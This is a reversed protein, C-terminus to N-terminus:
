AASELLSLIDDALKFCQAETREPIITLIREAFEEPKWNGHPQREAGSPTGLGALAVLRAIEIRLTQHTM